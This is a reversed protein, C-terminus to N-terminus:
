RRDGPDRAADDLRLAGDITNHDTICLVDLGSGPVAAVLEDPTTTADGSWM